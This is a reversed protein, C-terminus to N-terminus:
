PSIFDQALCPLNVVFAVLRRVHAAAPLRRGQGFLADMLAIPITISFLSIIVHATLQGHDEVITVDEILLSLIEKREHDVVAPDEWLRSLDTCMAIVRRRMDDTLQDQTEVRFRALEEEAAAMDALRANWEAELGAAVLRHAPDVLM